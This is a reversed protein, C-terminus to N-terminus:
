LVVMDSVSDELRQQLCPQTWDPLRVAEERARIVPRSIDENGDPCLSTICGEVDCHDVGELLSRNALAESSPSLATSCACLALSLFYSSLHSASAIVKTAVM